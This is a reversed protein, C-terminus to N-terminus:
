ALRALMAGLRSELILQRRYYAARAEAQDLLEHTRALERELRRVDHTLNRVSQSTFFLAKWEGATTGRRWGYPLHLEGDREIVWGAFASHIRGLDFPLAFPDSPPLRSRM